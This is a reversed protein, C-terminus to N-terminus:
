RMTPSSTSNPVNSSPENHQLWLVVGTDHLFGAVDLVDDENIDCGRSLNSFEEITILPRSRLKRISLLM